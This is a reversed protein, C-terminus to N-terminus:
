EVSKLVRLLQSKSRLFLNRSFEQIYKYVVITYTYKYM